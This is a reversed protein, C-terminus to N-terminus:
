RKIRFYPLLLFIGIKAKILTDHSYCFLSFGEPFFSTKIFFNVQFNFIKAFKFRYFYSGQVEDSNLLGSGQFVGDPPYRSINTSFLHLCQELNNPLFISEPNSQYGFNLISLLTLPKKGTPESTSWFVNIRENYSSSAVTFSFKKLLKM